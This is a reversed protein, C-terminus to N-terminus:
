CTRVSGKGERREESRSAAPLRFVRRRGAVPELQCLRRKGAKRARAGTFFSPRLCDIEIEGGLETAVAPRAAAPAQRPRLKRRNRGLLRLWDRDSPFVDSSLDSIRLEYATKPNFFFVDCRVDIM